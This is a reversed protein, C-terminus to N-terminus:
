SSRVMANPESARDSTPGAAPPPVWRTTRWLMWAVGASLLAAAVTCSLMRSLMQAPEQHGGLVANMWSWITYVTMWIFALPYFLAEVVALMLGSESAAHRRLRSTASWGCRTGAVPCVVAAVAGTITVAVLVVLFIPSNLINRLVVSEIHVPFIPAGELGRRVAAAAALLVMQGFVGFAIWRAGQKVLRAIQPQAPSGPAGVSRSPPPWAAESAYAQPPDLGSLISDIGAESAPREDGHELMDLIQTELDDTIARRRERTAGAAQLQSEVADLHMDIRARVAPPLLNTM